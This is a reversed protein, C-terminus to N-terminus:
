QASAEQQQLSREIARTRAYRQYTWDKEHAKDLTYNISNMMRSELVLADTELAKRGSEDYFMLAPVRSMASGAYFAAATTKSGDPLTIETTKDEIDLRMVNFKELSKRVKDITLVNKHFDNCDRCGNKELLVMTPKGNSTSLDHPPSVFMPDDILKVEPTAAAVLSNYYDRLSVKSYHGGSVYDLVVTFREPTQYGPLRLVRQGDTDFFLLTPAFEAGRSKAFAKIPMSEGEPSTMMKDDFIEMGIAVFDKQVRAALEPNGLSIDIFRACYSCGETTFLIMVGKKGEEGAEAIDDDLDYFTDKFWDPYDIHAITYDDFDKAAVEVAFPLLLLAAIAIRRSFFTRTMDFVEALTYVSPGTCIRSHDSLSLRM